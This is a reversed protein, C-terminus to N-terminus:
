YLVAADINRESSRSANRDRSLTRRSLKVKRGDESMFIPPDEKSSM